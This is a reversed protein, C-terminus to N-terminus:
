IQVMQTIEVEYGSLSPKQAPNQTLVKIKSIGLKKLIQTGVGYEAYSTSSLPYQFKNDQYNIFQQLKRMTNESNSVNNIFIIVGNEEQNIKETIKELLSQEGSILRGLIDFYTSSSQVRVLVEQDSKWTGKTLAFHIQDTHREQFAYFDYEGYYTKISKLYEIQHVLDGKKLQYQILDEISIIKLDHKKALEMLEPLRAMTGDENMIECIVGGPNLGALRTM